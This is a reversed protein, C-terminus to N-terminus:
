FDASVVMVNVLSLFTATNVRRDMGAVGIGENPRPSLDFTSRRRKQLLLIEYM